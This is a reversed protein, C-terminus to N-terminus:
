DAAGPTAKDPPAETEARATFRCLLTLWDGDDSRSMELEGGSQAILRRIFPLSPCEPAREGSAEDDGLALDLQLEVTGEPGPRGGLKVAGGEPCSGIAATALGFVIQRLRGAECDPQLGTEPTTVSLTVGEDTARKELLRATLLLIDGLPLGSEEHHLPDVELAALETVDDVAGLLHRASELIQEAYGQQTESLTGFRPDVLLQGFGFITHLPTRLRHSIQDLMAARMEEAAELAENRARLAHAIRESDTVDAFVAMTSGDPLGAFRASLIRGTGLTLRTAWPQRSGGSTIFRTLRTWVETEVTLGGVLPILEHVHMLPRVSEEDTGWIRHFATNVLHLLGDSGFVALGEDLRDLTARRLDIAHRFQQELRLRETVDEFVFALSGHPHPRALVRIDSGDALHWLEEYDAAETNEFLETLRRRWAHFDPTEPIRRNTRLMDIIERLGPRRALWAPDTQWMEVLAPNFLALRQNHDFIALGVNLHAFTETMTRVFRALTREAELTGSADVALGFRGGGAAPVEVAELAVTGEGGADALEIRFREAGGTAEDGGAHADRSPGASEETETRAAALSAAKAAEVPGLRTEVRGESWTVGGDATRSWAVLPAAALLGSLARARDEHRAPEDGAEGSEIRARGREADLLSADRLTLRLQGGWPAGALVYPRDARDRLVLEFPAGSAELRDLAALAEARSPAAFAGIVERAPRGVPGGGSGRLLAEAEAGADIVRGEELLLVAGEGLAAARRRRARERSLRALAWALAGLSLLLAVALGILLDSEGLTM